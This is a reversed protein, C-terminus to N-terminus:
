RLRRIRSVRGLKVSRGIPSTIKLGVRVIFEIGELVKGSIAVLSKTALPGEFISRPNM